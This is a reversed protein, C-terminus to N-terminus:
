KAMSKIYEVANEGAMRGSNLAFGMGGGPLLMVYTDGHISNADVGAAYLGPIVEQDQTVVETKYNIKIGGRTGYGAPFFRSAYFRPQKVPRLYKYSKNFIDDHGIECAKNYEDVTKKLGDPNIGTKSALEELSAAVFINKNGQEIVKKIDADFDNIRENAVVVSIINLGHEMYYQKTGEDIITFACRNKQRAIANGMFTSNIMIEENVFREGQLNVVLNPERFVALAAPASATAMTSSDAMGYNLEMYMGDTGAGVEWTMRIGDGVLGPIRFSFIDRGWEFGTYKKIWEPSDGFGGTAIIVAKAKAQITKGSRDEAVVGAIRGGEKLIKKAPTQLFIQVRLEQARETLIRMITGAAMPGPRGGSPKILHWTFNAGPFYAAPEVFEVGMKELWDITSDSKDIYAKVLRADGRWHTYNMFIKFAEERTLPIQKLRQLRSEVAFPGMGMNGTGGTTSAKEFVAVKAGLEAAAVGAAMGSTGGGIILVDAEVQKM